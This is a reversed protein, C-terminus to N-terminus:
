SNQSKRIVIILNILTIVIASILIIAFIAGISAEGIESREFIIFGTFGEDGGSLFILGLFSIIIVFFSLGFTLNKDFSAIRSYIEDAM